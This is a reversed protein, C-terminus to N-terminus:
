NYYHIFLEELSPNLISIDVLDLANLKKLLLQPDGVYLFSAKTEDLELEKVGEFSLSKKEITKTAEIHIRKHANKIEDVKINKVLTGDKIILVRDCINQVDSLVHSSFLIANGKKKEEKLIKQFELQVLPDLGNTPEDLLIIKPEHFLANVIGVKKKNGLSMESIKQNLNLNLRASLKSINETYDIEYFSNSYQLFTRATMNEYLSPEGPLYGIFHMIESYNKVLPKNFIKIDGSSPHILNIISKITTSKGSGNPGIFGLIEGSYLSFNVDECGKSKGYYKTLNKVDIVINPM